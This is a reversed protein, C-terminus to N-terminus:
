PAPNEQRSIDELLRIAQENGLEAANILWGGALKPHQPVGYGEAFCLFMAFAADPSGHMAAYRLYKVAQEPHTPSVKMYHKALEIEANRHGAEAAIGYWHRAEKVSQQTGVGHAYCAGLAAAARINGKAASMHLWRFGMEPNKAVKHGAILRRGYEYCAGADGEAAKAALKPTNNIGCSSLFLAATLLSLFRFIM